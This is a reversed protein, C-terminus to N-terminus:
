IFLSVFDPNAIFSKQSSMDLMGFSWKLLKERNNMLDDRQSNQQSSKSIRM